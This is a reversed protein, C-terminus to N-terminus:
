LNIGGRPDTMMLESFLGNPDGAAVATLFEVYQANTVEFKGIRYEYSVAGFCGQSQTECSNGANAVTVWDITVVASAPSTLLLLVAVPPLWSLRTRSQM